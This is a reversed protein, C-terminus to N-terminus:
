TLSSIPNNHDQNIAQIDLSNPQSTKFFWWFANNNIDSTKSNAHYSQIKTTILAILNTILGFLDSFFRSLAATLLNSLNSWYEYHNELPDSKTASMNSALITKNEIRQKANELRANSQSIKKRITEKINNLETNKQLELKIIKSLELALANYLCNGDGITHQPSNPNNHWHYNNTNYIYITYKPSHAHDPDQNQSACTARIKKHQNGQQTIPIMYIEINFFDALAGVEIATAWEFPQEQMYLFQNINKYFVEGDITFSQTKILTEIESKTNSVYNTQGKKLHHIAIHRLLPALKLQIDEPKATLFFLILNEKYTLVLHQKFDRKIKKIKKSKGKLSNLILNFLQM